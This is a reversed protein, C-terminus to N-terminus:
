FDVRVGLKVMRPTLVGQVNQWAPGYRSNVLLVANTNLANHLDLNPQVRTRGVRFTRTVSLNLQSIRGERFLSNPEILEVSATSTAGGALPRGLAPTVQANGAVFTATTAPGAVNQYVASVRLDLPLPYSGFLKLQTAASWPPAVRCFRSPAANTGALEPLAALVECNDTVTQSTALGGSVVGGNGFRANITVDVGNYVESQQGYDSAHAVLNRVRGFASPKIAMLGCIREGGSDPLRADSPGTLCYGDYDAPTVLVNDTAVFNGYWTRFYGVTVGIGPRVEHQVSASWQWNYSRVGWGHLVDDTYSTNSVVQGFRDNSLLGLENEQPIYDGNADAWTRNAQTVILNAPVTASALGGLPEFGIFRGVNVKLATRNSGFLNYSAGLRPSLDKWTVIGDVAAYDRAPVWRGQPSHTEPAYSSLSDFRVGLNLTLDRINWQDQAYLATQVIGSKVVNPYAFLTVSEPVTGAFTYSISLNNQATQERIARLYLGGVKFAHSGTVYSLSATGNGQAFPTSNLSVPSGYRYNRLRDVVSITDAAVGQDPSTDRFFVSFVALTGAQLLL